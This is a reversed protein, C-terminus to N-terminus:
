PSHMSHVLRRVCDVSKAQAREARCALTREMFLDISATYLKSDSPSSSTMDVTYVSLECGVLLNPVYKSVCREVHANRRERAITRRNPAVCGGGGSSSLAVHRESHMRALQSSPASGCAILAASAAM